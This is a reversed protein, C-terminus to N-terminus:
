TYYESLSINQCPKLLNFFINATNKSNKPLQSLSIVSHSFIVSKQDQPGSQMIFNIIIGDKGSIALKFVINKMSLLTWVSSSSKFYIYWPKDVQVPSLGSASARPNDGRVPPCVTTYSNCLFLDRFNLVVPARQGKRHGKVGAM